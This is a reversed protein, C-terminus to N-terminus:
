ELDVRRVRPVGWSFCCGDDDDDHLRSSLDSTYDWSRNRAEQGMGARWFGGSVRRRMTSVWARRAVCRMRKGKGWAPGVNHTVITRREEFNGAGNRPRARDLMVNSWTRWIGRPASSSWLWGSRLGSLERKPTPVRRSAGERARFTFRSSRLRIEPPYGVMRLRERRRSM